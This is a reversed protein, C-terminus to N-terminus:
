RGIQQREALARALRAALWPGRFIMGTYIQVLHAGADLKEAASAPDDVGGVAILPLRGATAQAIYHVMQTARRRLPWGSLGGTTEPGPWDGPRALTTNTAIIGDIGHTAMAEL